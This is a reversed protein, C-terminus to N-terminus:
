AADKYMQRLDNQFFSNQLGNERVTGVKGSYCIFDDVHMRVPNYGNFVSELCDTKYRDSRDKKFIIRWRDSKVDGDMRGSQISLKLTFYNFMGHVKDYHHNIGSVASDFLYSLLTGDRRVHDYQARFERWKNKIGSFIWQMFWYPSIIPLAPLAEGKSEIYIVEGLERGGAGWAEPRQLDCIVRIFVRNAIVAAHRCMMLCANFLDNKQNCEETLKKTEQLEISNKREKDVETIVYVGFSLKFSEQMRKGLRLMDFNVIHCQERLADYMRPDRAFFDNNRLPMNGLDSVISDVRISYNAFILSTRVTFVLYACAYDELAEFLHTIKLNDNYTYRYHEYDYGFTYDFCKRRKRFEQWEDPDYGKKLVYDFGRRLAGIRDKVMDLDVLKRDSVEKNLYDRLHQWPFNPFMLNKELLIEFADDWQQIEASLAMSTILQTKGTGMEGYVTTVIGRDKLFARNAHEYAYLRLFAMNKCITNYFVMGVIIWAVGPIFRIAPTLDALLKLFQTYLAVFDFTVVLYLYFAVFEVFISIVNFYVLSLTLWLQWYKKNEAVFAFFDKIWSVTPYIVKFQFKRFRELQRSTGGLKPKKRTKTYSSLKMALLVLAPLLVLLLRSLVSVTDGFSCFFNVLNEKSAWLAWYEGWLRKFEIWEYPFIRLPEWPSEAWEWSPMLNVTPLVIPNLEFLETFYYLVSTALDRLSEGIRPLANPFLFGCGLFGLSIVACIIHRYDNEKIKNFLDKM